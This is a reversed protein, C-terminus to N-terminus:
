ERGKKGEAELLLLLLLLVKLQEIISEPWDGRSSPM